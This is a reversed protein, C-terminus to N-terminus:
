VIYKDLLSKNNYKRFWEITKSLSNDFSNKVKWKTTKKILKNDCILREVESNIARKRKKDIIIKKTSNSKRIIKEAIQKVSYEKNTGVNVVKGFLKRSKMVSYFAEVTDEIFLYDRKPTINGLIINKNNIAQLIITPILARSSQRPGFTNFPRLIKVPLDFSNHYSLALNDAAIKSAAYPSQANFPHKENMPFIQGTGYVESTSTIIIQEINYQKAAELINYSGELNTKLYALPSIYSYPIGILAALHFVIDIKKMSKAVSDYDRIDGFIFEIDKSYKSESLNGLNYNVNYRDFVKVNFNKKVFFEALHSGIFGTGGTILINKM